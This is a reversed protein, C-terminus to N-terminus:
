SPVESLEYTLQDYLDKFLEYKYLRHKTIEDSLENYKKNLFSKQEPTPHLAFQFSDGFSDAEEEMDKYTAGQRILGLLRDAAAIRAQIRGDSDEYESVVKGLEEKIMRQLQEKTLKMKQKGEELEEFDGTTEDYLRKLARKDYGPFKDNLYNLQDQTPPDVENHMAEIAEKATLGLGGQAKNIEAAKALVDELSVEQQKALVDYMEDEGGMDHWEGEKQLEEKIIRKLQEKTLKFKNEDIGYVDTGWRINMSPTDRLSTDSFAKPDQEYQQQAKKIYKKGHHELDNVANNKKAWRVLSNWGDMKELYPILRPDIM